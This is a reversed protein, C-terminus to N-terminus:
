SLLERSVRLRERRWCRDDHLDEDVVAVPVQAVLDLFGARFFFDFHADDSVRLQPGALAEQEYDGSVLASAACADEPRCVSLSTRESELFGSTWAFLPKTAEAMQLWIGPSAMSTLCLGTRLLSFASREVTVMLWAAM